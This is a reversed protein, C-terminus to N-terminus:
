GEQQMLTSSSSSTTTVTDWQWEWEWALLLLVMIVGQLSSTPSGLRMTPWQSPRITPPLPLM